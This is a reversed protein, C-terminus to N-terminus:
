SFWIVMLCLMLCIHYSIVNVKWVKMEDESLTDDAVVLVMPGMFGAASGMTYSKIFLGLEVSDAAACTVPKDPDEKVWVCKILGSTCRNARLSAIIDETAADDHIITNGPRAQFLKGSKIKAAQKYLYKSSINFKAHLETATAKGEAIQTGLYMRQAQSLTRGAFDQNRLNIFPNQLDSLIRNHTRFLL